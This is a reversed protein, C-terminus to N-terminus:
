EEIVALLTDYVTLLKAIGNRFREIALESPDVMVVNFLKVVHQELAEDLGKRMLDTLDTM